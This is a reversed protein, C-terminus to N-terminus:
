PKERPGVALQVKLAGKRQAAEIGEVGQSLDVVRDVMANVLRKTGEQRLLELAPPFPGCRSGVVRKEQVVVDNAVSSWLPLTQADGELSCTSKLVLTGLPRTLALALHIGQPSGSAEVVVDFSGAFDTATAETVLVRAVGEVLNLKREHRGLFAVKLGKSALVHAILLGLKGDGIVAVRDEPKIVQM